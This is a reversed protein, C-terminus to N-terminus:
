DSQIFQYRTRQCYIQGPNLIASPFMKQNPADPWAQPELCFGSNAGFFKGNQGQVALAGGAYFQLGPETTFLKLAIKSKPSHGQAVYTLERRQNAICFNHDFPKAKGIARPEIFDFDTAKVPSIQGTPIMEDNVPLYYNANIYVNHDQVSSTGDLNFYSHHTLSCPTPNTCTATIEIDLCGQAVLGYTCSIECDGPFGTEAEYDITKLQVKNHSAESVQWNKSSTGARGGHLTHIGLFNCDTQYVKKGLNFSANSIRNAFRGVIAGLYAENVVYDQPDDFGLVLPHGELDLSQLSAGITLIKAKLGGGALTISSIPEGNPLSAVHRFNTM